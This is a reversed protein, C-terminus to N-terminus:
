IRLHIVTKDSLVGISIPTEFLFHHLVGASGVLRKSSENTAFLGRRDCVEHGEEDVFDCNSAGDSYDKDDEGGAEGAEVDDDEHDGKTQAKTETATMPTTSTTTKSTTTTTTSATKTKM